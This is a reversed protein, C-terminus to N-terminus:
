NLTGRIGAYTGSHNGYDLQAHNPHATSCSVSHNPLISTQFPFLNPSLERPLNPKKYGFPSVFINMFRAGSVLSPPPVLDERYLSRNSATHCNNRCLATYQCTLHSYRLLQVQHRSWLRMDMTSRHITTDEVLVLLRHALDEKSGYPQTVRGLTQGFKDEVPVIMDDCM